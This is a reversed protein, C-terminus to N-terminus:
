EVADRDIKVSDLPNSLENGIVLDSVVTPLKILESVLDLEVLHSELEIHDVILTLDILWLDWSAVHEWM